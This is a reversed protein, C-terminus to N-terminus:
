IFLYFMKDFLFLMGLSPEKRLTIPGLFGLNMLLNNQMKHVHHVCNYMNSVLATHLIVM